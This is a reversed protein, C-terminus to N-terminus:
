TLTVYTSYARDEIQTFPALEVPGADTRIHWHGPAGAVALLQDRGAKVPKDTIAFLVIPGRLVAVTEPHQPDVPELRLTMPLSLEVRDGSKWTRRLTAFGKDVSVAVPSGNVTIQPGGDANAWTPIRLKLPFASPRSLEVRFSVTGREGAVDFPYDGSQTLTLSAGGPTTWKLTSPLYLNVYLAGARDHFYGLIHYDAAVQPLTGSCCPWKDPFYFRSGSNNYDSYYFATGDPQLRKAGLVTNYLVREMSDGYRGDGTVSLLYRTIKFHGYSGCPTEFSHHTSSLSEYLKGKGPEVFSEDPGWGGTAFSQTTLIMEFANTAARLHTESGDSLYAQMSSSLSNCHSYAHHHPLVNQNAALPTFWDKDLLYRSAMTRYRDGAGRQWALYLNEPLTYPEDWCFDDSTPDGVSARWAKQDERTLARPPLHPQAADTTRDLLAFAQANGAYQHADILGCVTKDYVYSPFRFKTYFRPSITPQYLALLRDVRAKAAPDKEAAYGRSLASIWQGFTHGTCFGHGGSPTREDASVEDYWGGMDPGPGPLGARLRWPKLLSDENLGLLLSQTHDFQERALGPALSVAGYPVPELVTRATQPQTQSQASAPVPCAAAATALAATELFARRSLM